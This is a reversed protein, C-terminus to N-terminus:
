DFFRWNVGFTFYFRKSPYYASALYGPRGFAQNVHGGKVFLNVKNINFNAFIDVVPYSFNKIEEQVYFNQTLPLYGNAYHTSRWEVDIGIQSKIIGKGLTGLWYLRSQSALNPIQIYNKNKSTVLITQDLNWKRFTFGVVNNSQIINLTNANQIPQYLSDYYIQNNINMYRNETKLRVKKTEYQLKFKYEDTNIKNFDNDWYLHNSNIYNDQLFPESLSKNYSFTNFAGSASNITAIKLDMLDVFRYTFDGKLANQLGYKKTSQYNNEYGYAQQMYGFELHWLNSKIYIGVENEFSDFLKEDFTSDTSHIAQRYFEPAISVTDLSYITDVLTYTTDKKTEYNLSVDEDTYMRKDRTFKHKSYVGVYGKVIDYRQKVAISRYKQENSGSNWNDLAFEARDITADVASDSKPDDFVIGWQENTKSNQTEVDGLLHYRKNKSLYSTFGRVSWVSALKDTGSRTAYQKRSVGRYFEAGINWGNNINQTFMGELIQDKKAGQTYKIFTYPSKTNYYKKNEFRFLAYRDPTLNQLVNNYSKFWLPQNPTISNGLNQYFKGDIFSSGYEHKNVYASDITELIISDEYFFDETYYNTSQFSYVLHTSDDLIQSKGIFSLILTIILLSINKTKLKQDNSHM